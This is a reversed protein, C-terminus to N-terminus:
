HHGTEHDRAARYRGTLREIRRNAPPDDVGPHDVNAGKAHDAPQDTAGAV